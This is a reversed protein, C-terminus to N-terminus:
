SCGRKLSNLLKVFIPVAGSEVVVKTNESTGSAINTLAWAAEFKQQLATSHVMPPMGAASAPFGDRRKKQLSEECKAKRMDMMQGERRHRSEEADVTQKYNGKRMQERESPRLSM